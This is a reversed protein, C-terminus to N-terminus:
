KKGSLMSVLVARYPEPVKSLLEELDIGHELRQKESWNEFRQYILKAAQADGAAAKKALGIDVKAILKSYKARRIDLAQKEIATLEDPTLIRYMSSADNYGLIQTALEMRGLFENDPNGLYELLTQTHQDKKAM